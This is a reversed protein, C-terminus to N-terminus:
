HRTDEDIRKILEKFRRGRASFKLMRCSNDLLKLDIKLYEKPELCGLRDAWEIVSIGDAYLYEEYGLDLIDKVSELRYLDFHYLPLRGQLHQRILVFSPSIVQRKEIGLGCAIGKTLVTKGVGLKGFLCIIDAPKANRAILKGIKITDNISKSIIEM